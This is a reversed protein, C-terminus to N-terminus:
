GGLLKVLAQAGTVPMQCTFHECVYATPLNDKVPRDDLLAPAHPDPPLSSIAAVLRPRFSRWLVNRMALGQQGHVDGVLAVEKVPGQAFDAATLWQAFATPYRSAAPLIAAIAQEAAARYEERGTFAALELLAQSALSNGSPTANDQVDRPRSILPQADARTDYFGWEDHRFATWMEGALSEAAAFWRPNPDSQYLALLGLILAAHDELYADHRANGNRWSRLLRDHPHLRTLLFDANRMAMDLYDGRGLYRGAEALARMMLANWGTLVKDDTKPRVRQSRVELLLEHLRSLRARVEGRELGLSAALQEDDATQQLIIRGEFNGEEDVPYAAAVLRRDEPDPLAARLEAMTWIYFRGEEGDSDADLSAFFGGEKGTLERATFDLTQECVRRFQDARDAASPEDKERCLLYAHLYALALQANDYLMKEFHPVLWDEDTSYRAFGGGVVDYMGGKAMAALADSAIELSEADGREGRRLLFEITMPQPFKPAHGWGGHARDYSGALGQAAQRLAEDTVAQGPKGTLQMEGHLAATIQESSDIVEDRRTEWARAVSLLVERFSPMNYRRVPPYYTGGFFPKGEPTLFMSMPWGGQGTLAVVATMYISDIDPREERDVKINVFHENMIGATQPDEFSEHAMVHCWHCAAYGISLFIPKEERRAKELAEAGWPYWDVPNDAHQLLYPSNEGALQNM